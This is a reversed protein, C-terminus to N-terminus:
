LLGDAVVQDVSELERIQDAVESNSRIVLAGIDLADEFRVQGVLKKAELVSEIDHRVAQLAARQRALWERTGLGPEQDALKPLVLYM